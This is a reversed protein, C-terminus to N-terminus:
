VLRYCLHLFLMQLHTSDVAPVRGTHLVDRAGHLTMPVAVVHHLCLILVTCMLAPKAMSGLRDGSEWLPGVGCKLLLTEPQVFLLLWGQNQDRIRHAEMGSAYAFTICLRTINAVSLENHQEGKCASSPSTSLFESLAAEAEAM